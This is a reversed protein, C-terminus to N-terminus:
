FLAPIYYNYYPYRYRSYEYRPHRYRSYGYQPYGYQSYGYSPYGYDYPYKRAQTLYDYRTYYPKSTLLQVDTGSLFGETTKKQLCYIALIFLIILILCVFIRM